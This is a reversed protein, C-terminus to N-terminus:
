RRRARPGAARGGVRAADDGARRPRRRGARADSGGPQGRRASRGLLVAVGQLRVQRAGVRHGAAAHDRRRLERPGRGALGAVVAALCALAGASGAGVTTLRVGVGRDHLRAIVPLVDALYPSTSSSGIWGITVVEADAHERPPQREPDVCSPMIEVRTAHERSRAALFANGALVLRARRLAAVCRRAEQKAWAFGRNVAAASGLFLADDLDYVDLRRPPDLGPLPALLRLRHVLLLDHAPRRGAARVAARALVAAKRPASARSALLGYQEDTLAPFHELSVGHERLFPAFAAVRVRASPVIAPYATEGLIRLASV